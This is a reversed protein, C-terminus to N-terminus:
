INLLDTAVQNIIDSHCVVNVIRKIINERPDINSLIYKEQNITESFRERKNIIFKKLEERSVDELKVINEPYEAIADEM